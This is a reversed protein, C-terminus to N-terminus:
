LKRWVQHRSRWQTCWNAASRSGQRTAHVGSQLLGAALTQIM